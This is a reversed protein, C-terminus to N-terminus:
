VHARGIKTLTTRAPVLLTGNENFIDHRVAKGVYRGADRLMDQADPEVIHGPRRWEEMWLDFRNFDLGLQTLVFRGDLAVQM